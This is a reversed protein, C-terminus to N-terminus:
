KRKPQAPKRKGNKQKQGKKGHQKKQARGRNPSKPHPQTAATRTVQAPHTTKAQAISPSLSLVLAATTITIISRLSCPNHTM